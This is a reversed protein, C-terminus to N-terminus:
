CNLDLDIVNIECLFSQKEDNKRNYCFYGSVVTGWSLLHLIHIMEPSKLAGKEVLLEIETLFNSKYKM